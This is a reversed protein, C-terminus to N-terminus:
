RETGARRTKSSTERIYVIALSLVLGLGAGGLSILIRNPSSKDEPIRADSITKLVYERNVETLMLTRMQESILEYLATKVDEVHTQQLQQELYKLSEEAKQRDQLRFRENITSVLADAWAKALIPSYFEVSLTILGTTKDQEVTLRSRFAKYLEWGNPAATEGAAADFRRVWKHDKVDYLDPDIYLDNDARNWGTAAFVDVALHNERIFDALFGWSKLVKIVADTQDTGQPMNIGGLAALGGFEQALQSLKSSGSNEAPTLLATATYEVPLLFALAVAAVAFAVTVTAILWKHRWVTRLLDLLEVERGGREAVLLSEIRTLRADLAHFATEPTELNM